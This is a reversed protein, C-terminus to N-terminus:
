WGEIVCQGDFDAVAAEAKRAIQMVIGARHQMSRAFGRVDDACDPLFYGGQMSSIILAGALRESSIQRRVEREGMGTSQCLAQLSVSSGRGRGLLEAIM